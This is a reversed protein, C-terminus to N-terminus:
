KTKIIYPNSPSGPNLFPKNFDTTRSRIEIDGDWREKVQYPNTVSGQEGFPRTYDQILPRIEITEGLVAEIQGISLIATIAVLIVWLANLRKM